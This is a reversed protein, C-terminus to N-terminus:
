FTGGDLSDVQSGPITASASLNNLDARLHEIGGQTSGDHIVLAKKTTNITIEGNAGTFSSHESTTGRKFQVQTSM